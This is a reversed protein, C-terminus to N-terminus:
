VEQKKSIIPGGWRVLGIVVLLTIVFLIVYSVFNDPIWYFVKDIWVTTSFNIVFHVLVCPLLSHYREALYGLFLGIAFAYIGQILNMHIVGFMLAQFVNAMWFHPLAKKAYHLTLGRCVLEEGIPALLIAAINALLDSGMGVSKMLEIFQEVVGPIIYQEIGVIGNSMLCLFVGGVVGIVVAKWSLNKVSQKMKPRNCGFYYWLGFIPISLLHYFMVGGAAASYVSNIYVDMVEQETAIPNAAQFGIMSIVAAIIMYVGGLVLQLVLCAIPPTLSLFFFGVKKGSGKKELQNPVIAINNEEM